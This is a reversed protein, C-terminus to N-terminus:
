EADKEEAKGEEAAAVAADVIADAEEKTLEKGDKDTYKEGDYTIGANAYIGKQFDLLEEASLEAGSAETGTTEEVQADPTRVSEIIRGFSQAFILDWIWIFAGIILVCAIVILTNNKVQKFSPWVVKKLESKVDKFYSVIKNTKKAM